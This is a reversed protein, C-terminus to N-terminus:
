ERPPAAPPPPSSSQPKARALAELARRAQWTALIQLWPKPQPLVGLDPERTVLLVSAGLFAAGFWQLLTFQEHLFITAAFITILAESLGLLAAQVGGLYKVGTFLALRSIVTVITLLLVFQWAANTAPLAPQGGFLYAVTVTIAMATITYLAVTPAPMDFLVHQNVAVHVAYMLGSFLVLLGGVLDARGAGAATILYVAGLALSLRFVTLRTIPYGDLRALLTLFLTYLTFILQVLSANLRGLGDYYALSGIGNLFGALLCGALGVPYIYIYKRLRPSVLYAAWLVSMSLVTRLMVVTLPATGQLIAQRGFIPPLGLVMASILAAVIGQTQQPKLRPLSSM